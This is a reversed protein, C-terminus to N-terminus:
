ITYITHRIMYMQKNTNMRCYRYGSENMIQLNRSVIKHNLM